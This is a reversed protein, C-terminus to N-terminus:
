ESKMTDALFYARNSMVEHTKGKHEFVTTAAPLEFRGVPNVDSYMIYSFVREEGAQLTGVTWFLRRTASEIRDPRLGFQEYLKTMGPLRDIVQVQDVHQKARVMIRVKLAFQGGKTKVYSVHKRVVVATSTYIHVLFSIVIVLLLILL